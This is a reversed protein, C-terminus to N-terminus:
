AVLKLAEGWARNKVSSSQGFWTSNLRNDQTKSGRHHDCFETVANVLGWATGDSSKLNSGKGEGQFLQFLKRVNKADSSEITEETVEDINNWVKVLFEIAEKDGVKRKALENVETVFQGFGDKALGLQAKIQEPDFTAHHPVKVTTPRGQEDRISFDLTNNCVVRVTTFQATTALSGDCSTALLLFGDLKDQGMIRASEGIEALAWFKKGGFLVGATNLKFGATDILDRYFELVERPQVIRYMDSVISLPAKTDSRYLINREPFVFVEDSDDLGLAPTSLLNWDMGAQQAWVELPQGETLQQGLGHWPVEGVFAMSGNLNTKSIVDIEHAM